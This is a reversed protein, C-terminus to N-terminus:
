QPCRPFLYETFTFHMEILWLCHPSSKYVSSQAHPRLVSSNPVSCMQLQQLVFRVKLYHRYNEALWDALYVATNKFINCRPTDTGQLAPYVTIFTDPKYGYFSWVATMVPSYLKSCTFTHNSFFIGMCLRLILQYLPPLFAAAVKKMLAPFYLLWLFGVTNGLLFVGASIKATSKWLMCMTYWDMEKEGYSRTQGPRKDIWAQVLNYVICPLVSIGIFIWLTM